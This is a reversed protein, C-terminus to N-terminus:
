HCAVGLRGSGFTNNGDSTPGLKKNQGVMIAGQGRIRPGSMRCLRTHTNGHYSLGM